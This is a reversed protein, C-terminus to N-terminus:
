CGAPLSNSIQVKTSLRQGGSSGVTMTGFQGSSSDFCVVINPNPQVDLADNLLNVQTTMTAEDQNRSYSGGTKLTVVTVSQAGSELNGSTANYSSFSNLFGFGVINVGNDTIKTVNVGYEFKKHETINPAITPRSESFDKPLTGDASTTKFQRGVISYINYNEDVGGVNAPDGFQVFKGLFVCGQNNGQETDATPASFTPLGAAGAQCKFSNTAPYYGNSVANIVDKVQSNIASMGQRFEAKSQKGNIFSSAIVFMLGSIALFIMVELITYGRSNIGHRM